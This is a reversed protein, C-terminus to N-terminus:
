EAQAQRALNVLVFEASHLGFRVLAAPKPALALLEDDSLERVPVGAKATVVINATKASAVDNAPSFPRTAVWGDGASAAHPRANLAPYALEGPGPKTPFLAM